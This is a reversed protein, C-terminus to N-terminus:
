RQSSQSQHGDSLSQVEAIRVPTPNELEELEHSRSDEPITSLRDTISGMSGHFEDLFIPNQQFYTFESNYYRHTSEFAHSDM